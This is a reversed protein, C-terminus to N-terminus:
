IVIKIVNYRAGAIAYVNSSKLNSEPLVKLDFVYGPEKLIRCDEFTPVDENEDDESKMNQLAMTVNEPEWLRVTADMKGGATLLGGDPLPCICNVVDRHADFVAKVVNNNMDIFFVAQPKKVLLPSASSVIAENSSVSYSSVALTSENIPEMSAIGCRFGECVLQLEVDQHRSLSDNRDLSWRFVRIVGREDGTM